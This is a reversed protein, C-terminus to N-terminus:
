ISIIYKNILITEKKNTVFNILNVKIHFFINIHTGTFLSLNIKNLHLNCFARLGQVGKGLRGEDILLWYNLTMYEFEYFFAVGELLLSNYTEWLLGIASGLLRWLLEFQGISKFRLVSINVIM